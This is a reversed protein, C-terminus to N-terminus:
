QLPLWVIWFEKRKMNENSIMPLRNIFVIEFQDIQCFGFMINWEEKTEGDFMKRDNVTKNKKSFYFTQNIEEFEFMTMWCTRILYQELGFTRHLFFFVRNNSKKEFLHHKTETLIQHCLMEFTERTKHQERHFYNNSHFSFSNKWISNIPKMDFTFIHTISRCIQHFNAKSFILLFQISRSFTIDIVFQILKNNISENWLDPCLFSSCWIM